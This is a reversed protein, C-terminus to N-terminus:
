KKRWLYRYVFGPFALTAFLFATVAYFEWNQPYIQSLHNELALGAVGVAFYFLALELLRLALGKETAGGRPLVGLWRNNLFPLNAATVALAIVLWVANANNM